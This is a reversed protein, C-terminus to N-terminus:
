EKTDLWIGLGQANLEIDSEWIDLLTKEALTCGYNRIEGLLYKTLAVKIREHRAEGSTQEALALEVMEDIRRYLDQGLKVVHNVQGYHTLYMAPPSLSLLRDISAHMAVPDFQSPSSTPFIFQRDDVDLERYSLGFMDGTFIGGTKDDVICNHHRAHGPTDLCTLKRGALSIVHGDDAAIIRESPVPKIEGYVRRVYEEGYVAAVGAILKSPEAMHRSGRPHVVLKANPFAQIMASAGGAHDLHIHTLIVYDVASADLGLKKLAAMANPLSDNTGTDIFAVRGNESILHIAALIPRVYGTDFAFIGNGYDRWDFM